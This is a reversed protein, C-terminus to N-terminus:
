ACHRSVLDLLGVADHPAHGAADNDFYVHVSRHDRSWASVRDAWASLSPGAYRSRYLQPRGHLRVYRFDATDADIRPIGAGDSLVMAVGHERLLRRV